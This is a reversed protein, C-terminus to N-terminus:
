GRGGKRHLEAFSMIAGAIRDLPLVKHVHGMSVAERPMGWVVSTAEDQAITAAGAAKLEGMCRAGDDGMGTLIVGLANWGAAAAASRFLIDVSPRHRTIPPGDLLTARYTTGVRKLMMHRNGPAILATGQRAAAGEVAETVTIESLSDLRKAFAGTFGQPMHQVVLVAPATPPLRTLVERLAETGGTSAGIVVVPETKDPRRDLRPPPLLVDPSRKVEVAGPRGGAGNQAVSMAAERLALCLERSVEETTQGERGTPKAIVDWAGAKLADARIQENGAGVHASFVVAPVPHQAGIRNLFSIGDIGPLNLDLLIVDPLEERMLAVAEQADRAAGMVSLMRDGEVMRRLARRALPSDDVILVRHRSGTAMQM